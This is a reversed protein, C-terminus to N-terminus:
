KVDVVTADGRAWEAVLTYGVGLLVPGVFIGLLGFAIAGGLVGLMTLLFPLQAGRAIFFPRILSDAGSVAIVGYLFLFIGWATKGEALLWLSAPIWVVPAGIPLVSLGGAILGLLLPRPVGSLWLGFTTLIGQVIATGLIGYVVGRITAGTVEILRPGRAGAIRLLVLRLTAALRDGSAFFFFAVFLALLFMLVGNALGLLLSLGFEAAMGFYPRFFDGMVSLDAAWSNWLGGLTPGILPVDFLWSPAGPLGAALAAQVTKRLRDVDDAGGPAALALPLVVLVFAASVMIGSAPVRSLGARERLWEYAPWTTYTLIAAWLIGSFFPWLVLVCGVGVGGLLMGMLVREAIM